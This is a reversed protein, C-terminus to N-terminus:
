SRVEKGTIELGHGAPTRGGPVRRTATHAPIM